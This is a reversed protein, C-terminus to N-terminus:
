CNKGQCLVKVLRRGAHWAKRSMEFQLTSALLSCLPKKLLFHEPAVRLLIPVATEIEGTVFIQFRSRSQIDHVNWGDVVSMVHNLVKDNFGGALWSKIFGHHVLPRTCMLSSGRVPPHPIRWAQPYVVKEANVTIAAALNAAVQLRLM